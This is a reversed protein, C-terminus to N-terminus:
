ENRKAAPPDVATASVTTARERSAPSAATGKWAFSRFGGSALFVRGSLDLLQSGPAFPSRLGDLAQPRRSKDGQAPSILLESGVAGFSGANRIAGGMCVPLSVIRNSEVKFSLGYPFRRVGVRRIESHVIQFALSEAIVEVAADVALAFRVGLDPHISEYWALAEKLDADAEPLWVVPLTM